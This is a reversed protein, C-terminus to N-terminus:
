QAFPEFQKEGNDGAIGLLTIKQLQWDQGVQEYDFQWRSSVGQDQTADQTSICDITVTITTEAQSSQMGLVWASKVGFRDYAAHGREVIQDRGVAVTGVHSDLETQDDLLAKVTNWDDKDVAKVLQRTRQEAKQLDTPFLFGLVGLLIGLLALAAGVQQLTKDQRKKGSILFAIGAAAILLAIWWPTHLLTQM